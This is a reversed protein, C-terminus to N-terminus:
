AKKFGRRTRHGTYEAVIDSLIERQGATLHPVLADVVSKYAITADERDYWQVKCNRHITLIDGDTLIEALEQAANKRDNEYKAVDKKAARELKKAADWTEALAIAAANTTTTMTTTM